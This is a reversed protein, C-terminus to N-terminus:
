RHAVFHDDVGPAFGLELLSGMSQCASHVYFQFGLQVGTELDDGCRGVDQITRQLQLAVERVVM